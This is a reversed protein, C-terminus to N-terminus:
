WLRTEAVEATGAALVLAEDLEASSLDPRAAALLRADLQPQLKGDPGREVVWVRSKSDIKEHKM